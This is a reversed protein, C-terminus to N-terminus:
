VDNFSKSSKGAKITQLNREVQIIYLQDIPTWHDAYIQRSDIIYTHGTFMLVVEESDSQKSMVTYEKFPLKEYSM